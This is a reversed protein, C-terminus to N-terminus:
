TARTSKVHGHFICSCDVRNKSHSDNSRVRNGSNLASGNGHNRSKVGALTAPQKYAYIDM